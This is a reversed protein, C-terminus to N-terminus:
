RKRVTILKDSVQEVDEAETDKDEGDILVEIEGDSEEEEVEDEDKKDVNDVDNVDINKVRKRQRVLIEGVESSDTSNSVNSARCKRTHVGKKPQRTDKQAQSKKLKKGTSKKQNMATKSKSMINKQLTIQCHLPQPRLVLNLVIERTGQVIQNLIQRQM